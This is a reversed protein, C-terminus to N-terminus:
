HKYHLMKYYRYSKVFENFIPLSSSQRRNVMTRLPVESEYVTHATTMGLGQLLKTTLDANPVSTIVIESPKVTADSDALGQVFRLRFSHPTCFIWDIQIRDKSTTQNWQLGLAVSFMWAFLPSRESTWRYAASPHRGFRTAGSPPKDAKRCMGIGLNNVCMSVMDGFRENTVQKKSLQLDLNMSAFRSLHGGSKALDGVMVGLLYAFLELRMSQVQSEPLGFQLGREYTSPLPTLQHVVKQIDSFNTIQTPVRIWSDQQNGGSDLHLPLLKEDPSTQNQLVAHAARILYPQDKFERWQMVTSRHVQLQSAIDLVGTGQRHLDIFRCFKRLQGIGSETATLGWVREDLFKLVHDPGSSLLEALETPIKLPLREVRHRGQYIEVGLKHLRQSVIKPDVEDAEAIELISKGSEFAEKWRKASEESWRRYRRKGTDQSHAGDREPSSEGGDTPENM